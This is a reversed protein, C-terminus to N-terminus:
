IDDVFQVGGSLEIEQKDTFLSMSKGLLELSKIADEDSVTTIYINEEIIKEGDITKESRYYKEIPEQRGFRTLRQLVETGSAIKLEENREEFAKKLQEVVETIHGFKVTGSLMNSATSNARNTSYGAKRAADSANIFGNAVYELVFQKQRARTSPWDAMLQNALDAIENKLKEETNIKVVVKRFYFAM